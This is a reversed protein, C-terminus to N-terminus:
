WEVCFPRFGCTKELWKETRGDLIRPKPTDKIPQEKLLEKKNVTM